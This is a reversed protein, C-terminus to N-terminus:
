GPSLAAAGPPRTATRGDAKAPRTEITVDTLHEIEHALEHRVREALEYAEAVTAGPAVDIALEARIGHGLWRARVETVDNVGDVGRAVRAIAEVTGGEVGDMARLGITRLSQWVIRLIVLSIAIGVIPDALEFGAAVGGVGLVVALSTFGDVRAHYGDAVLAASGIRKGSRVRYVAVWENGIFGIAGALATALLHSPAAPEILRAISEYAAYAASFLIILVVAFGAFDEARGWGYTLRTTPPRRLLLFAIALPVATLADGINHVTDALLAVSGSLVVIVLQFAATVGLVALSLWLTRMADRSRLIAPDIGGHSHDHGHGHRGDTHGHAHAVTV